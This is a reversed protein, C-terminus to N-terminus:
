PHYRGGRTAMERLADPVEFRQSHAKALVECEEVFRAAGVTDIHSIAGGLVALFGWGLLSGVDADRVGVIGEAVCRAAELSQSYMLRKRVEDVSPQVAAAPYHEAFGPWLRKKGDAPYDYFGKGTKRGIRDFKEVMAVLVEDQPKARYNKGQDINAQKLVKYMLEVSVEDVLALPTIPMGAMRAANEILNPNVGERLMTMAEYPFM